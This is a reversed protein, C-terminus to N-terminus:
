AFRGLAAISLSLGAVLVAAGSVLPLSGGAFRVWRQTALGSPARVSGRLVTVVVALGGLVVAMGAGFAGILLIGFVLRGTSIAVLFVILASASPVMGGALGLAIVNRRRLEVPPPEGHSHAHVNPHPHSHAHASPRRVGRIARFLLGAGLLAVLLGSAISLWEIVREPVFFQGAVLTVAGLLFVGSTHTAAVTVGLTAAQRVSGRSGILYAAILAKGHGPSLAHAAGLLAALLIAAAVAAPTLDGGVLAAFPDNANPGRVPAVEPEAETGISAGGAPHLTATGSRVDPPTQLADVPYRLLGASPSVSPVDSTDIVVGPGASITVERWGIHGDDTRDIVSISGPTTAPERADFACVLRLTSLGGAGAPLTVQPEGRLELPASAGDITLELNSRTTRCAAAAYSALEAADTQGDGNGDILQLESFAPIEAMDIVYVVSVETAAVQVAVARNVTYNGLPHASAVGASAALGLTVLAAAVISRRRIAM